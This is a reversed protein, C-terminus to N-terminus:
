CIARWNPSGAKISSFHWSVRQENPESGPESIGGSIAVLSTSRTGFGGGNVPIENIFMADVPEGSPSHNSAMLKVWDDWGDIAAGPDPEAANKFLPLYHAIRPSKNDNLDFASLMSVGTPIPSAEVKKAGDKLCLWFAHYADAIVMNFPRYAAPNIELMADKAVTAEAHDLAELVLEGRTRKDDQPGLTGMRNLMGAVLGYDNIGLWSGGGVEDIGATIEPRDPWHRAPARWPRGAMEDRNTAIILPWKHGPRRLIVLTCM